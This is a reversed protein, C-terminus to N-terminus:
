FNQLTILIVFDAIILTSCKIDVTTDGLIEAM